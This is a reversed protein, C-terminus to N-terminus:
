WESFWVSRNEFIYLFFKGIVANFYDSLLSSVIKFVEELQKKDIPTTIFIAVEYDANKEECEIMYHHGMHTIKDLINNCLQDTMERCQPPVNLIKITIRSIAVLLSAVIKM